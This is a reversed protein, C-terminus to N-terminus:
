LQELIRAAGSNIAQGAAQEINLAEVKGDNVIMSFRKSRLGM